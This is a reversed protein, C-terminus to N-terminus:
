AAICGGANNFAINGSCTFDQLELTSSPDGFIAGGKGRGGAGSTNDSVKSSTGSLRLTSGRVALAGALAAESGNPLAKNGTITSDLISLIGGHANMEACGGVRASNDKCTLRKLTVDGSSAWLCGGAVASNNSCTTNQLLLHSNEGAYIAGGLTLSPANYDGEHNNSFTSNAIDVNGGEALLGGGRGNGPGQSDKCVANRLTVSGSNTFICAGDRAINHDLTFGDVVVVGGGTNFIM